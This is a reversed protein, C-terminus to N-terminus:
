EFIRDDDTDEEAQKADKADNRLELNQKTLLKRVVMVEIAEDSCANVLEQIDERLKTIYKGALHAQTLADASGNPPPGADIVIQLPSRRSADKSM